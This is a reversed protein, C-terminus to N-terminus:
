PLFDYLGSRMNATCRRCKPLHGGLFEMQWEHFNEKDLYHHSEKKLLMWNGFTHRHWGYACVVLLNSSAPNGCVVDVRAVDDPLSFGGFRVQKTINVPSRSTSGDKRVWVIKGNKKELRM